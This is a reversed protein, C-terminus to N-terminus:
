RFHCSGCAARRSSVGVSSARRFVSPLAQESERDLGLDAQFELLAGVDLGDLNEAFIELVQQESRGGPWSAHKADVGADAGAALDGDDVVGALEEACSTM